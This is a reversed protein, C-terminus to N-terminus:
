GMSANVYSKKRHRLKSKFFEGHTWEQDMTLAGMAEAQSQAPDLVSWCTGLPVSWNFNQRSAAMQQPWHRRLFVQITKQAYAPSLFHKDHGQRRILRTDFHMAAM